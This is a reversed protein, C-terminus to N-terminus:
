EWEPLVLKYLEALVEGQTVKSKFIDSITKKLSEPGTIDLQQWLAQCKEMLTTEM